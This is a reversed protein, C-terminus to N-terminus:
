LSFHILNDKNRNAFIVGELTTLNYIVSWQLCDFGQQYVGIDALLDVAQTNTLIGNNSELAAKAKDYREFECAGGRIDPNYASFNSCIQYTEPVETIKIEGGVFNVIVSRGTADTIQYQTFIGMEFFINYQGLLSIAEEVSAAKDLVLRMATLQNMKIKSPDHSAEAQPIYVAAIAVGKANMGDMPLYPTYLAAFSELNLGRPLHETDGNPSPPANKDKTPDIKYGCYLLNVTSVSAHGTNPKTFLQLSPSPAFDVNRGFIVEGKENRTVFTTCGGGSVKGAGDNVPNNDIPIGKLLHKMMFTLEDETDTVGVKLFEDFGYDGIYTMQFMGYDDVKKLTALSQIANKFNEM